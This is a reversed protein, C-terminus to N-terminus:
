EWGNGSALSSWWLALALALALALERSPLAPRDVDSLLSPELEAAEEPTEKVGLMPALALALM